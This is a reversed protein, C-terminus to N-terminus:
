APVDFVESSNIITLAYGENNRCLWETFENEVLEQFDNSTNRWGDCTIPHKCSTIYVIISYSHMWERASAMCSDLRRSRKGLAKTYMFSDMISRDCIVIDPEDQAHLEKKMQDAYNILAQTESFASSLLSRNERLTDHLMCVSNGSSEFDEKLRECFTTKGTGHTGIVCIKM